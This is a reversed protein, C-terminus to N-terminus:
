SPVRKGAAAAAILWRLSENTLLTSFFIPNIMLVYSAMM